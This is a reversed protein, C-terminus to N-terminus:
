EYVERRHAIRTIDIIRAGDDIEYVVRYDGIRIRWQKDGGKLKKCGSPRPVSALREIKPLIRAIINKPLRQLEKEASAAFAIEYSTV